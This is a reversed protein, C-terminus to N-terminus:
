KQTFHLFVNIESVTRSGAVEVEYNKTGLIDESHIPLKERFIMKGGNKAAIEFRQMFHLFFVCSM